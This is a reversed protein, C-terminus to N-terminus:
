RDQGAKGYHSITVFVSQGTKDVYGMICGDRQKRRLVMLVRDTAHGPHFPLIFDRYGAPGCENLTPSHPCTM